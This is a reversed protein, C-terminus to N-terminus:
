CLAVFGLRFLFVSNFRQHFERKTSIWNNDWGCELGPINVSRLFAPYKLRPTLQSQKVVHEVHKNKDGELVVLTTNHGVNVDLAGHFEHSCVAHQVWHVAFVQLVDPHPRWERSMSKLHMWPPAENGSFSWKMQLVTRILPWFTHCYFFIDSGSM